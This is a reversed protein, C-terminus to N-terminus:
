KSKINFLALILLMIKTDAMGNAMLGAGVGAIISTFLSLDAFLGLDFTYGAIATLIAIVWSVFQSTTIKLQWLRIFIQNRFDFVQKLFETLLLVLAVVGSISFFYESFNM